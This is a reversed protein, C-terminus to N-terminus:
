SSSAVNIDLIHYLILMTITIVSLYCSSLSTLYIYCCLSICIVIVYSSYWFPMLYLNRIIIVHSSVAIVMDTVM